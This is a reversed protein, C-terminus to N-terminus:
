DGFSIRFKWIKGASSGLRRPLSELGDPLFILTLIIIIGYVMPVWDALPRLVEGLITLVVVGIVPGAVTHSGGFVVWVLLYLTATFGFQHPEIAWLRHALLVGAIGAFFSGISFALMKYGDANIGVSKALAEQSQVAKMSDGIRSNDLRYMLSLCIITVVLTLFYYPIAEAFDLAPVGPILEPIPVGLGRHGGFPVKFRIWCLRIAEGAAFSAVFFSFDKTRVLPYSIALGTLGAALGSLPMSFWFPIGLKGSILATAYAGAGMMTVHALSWGGTTTILRFSVALIVNVMLMTLFDVKYGSVTFPAVVMIIALITLWVSRNVNNKQM